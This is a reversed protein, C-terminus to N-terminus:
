YVLLLTRCFNEMDLWSWDCTCLHTARVTFLADEQLHDIEGSSESPTLMDTLAKMGNIVMAHLAHFVAREWHAYYAALKPARGGNTGCVAEEVKRLMPVMGQYM